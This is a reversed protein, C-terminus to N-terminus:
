ADRESRELAQALPAANTDHDRSSRVAQKGARSGRMRTAVVWGSLATLIAVAIFASPMGAVDALVGAILAGVVYGLDRWLRYVGIAPARWSPAAVGGIVALLTPYVLATGV